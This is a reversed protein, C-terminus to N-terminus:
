FRSLEQPPGGVMNLYEWFELGLLKRRAPSLSARIEPSLSLAMNEQQRIYPRCYYALVGTRHEDATVNAGTGHWVRGDIIMATGASGTAPVMCDGQPPTDMLHSGPAVLTAGNEVTFDDIMWIVHAVFAHPWPREAWDQDWHPAMAAGGPGTINASLNSVLADRGLVAHVAELTAGNELLELFCEGRNFLTWIRQNSGAGYLYSREAKADATAAVRLERRLVDLDASPLAGELRCVGHEILHTSAEKPDDTAPPLMPKGPQETM